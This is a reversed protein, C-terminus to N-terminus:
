SCEKGGWWLGGGRVKEWKEKQELSIMHNRLKAYSQDMEPAPVEGVNEFIKILQKNEFDRQNVLVGCKGKKKKEGLYKFILMLDDWRSKSGLWIMRKWYIQYKSSVIQINM